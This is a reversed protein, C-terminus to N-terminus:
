VWLFLQVLKSIEQPSCTDLKKLIMAFFQEARHTLSRARCRAEEPLRIELSRVIRRLPIRTTLASPVRMRWYYVAGRRFVNECLPM